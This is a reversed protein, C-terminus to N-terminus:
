NGIESSLMQPWISLDIKEHLEWQKISSTLFDSIVDKDNITNKSNWLRFFEDTLQDAANQEDFICIGQIGQYRYNNYIDILINNKSVVYPFPINESTVAIFYCISSNITERLLKLASIIESPFINYNAEQNHVIGKSIIGTFARAEYIEYRTATFKNNHFTNGLNVLKDISLNDFKYRKIAAANFFYSALFNM